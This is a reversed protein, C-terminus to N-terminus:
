GLLLPGSEQPIVEGENENVDVVSEPPVDLAKEYPLLPRVRVAVQIRSAHGRRSSPTQPTPPAPFSPPPPPAANRSTFFKKTKKAQTPTAQHPLAMFSAQGWKGVVGVSNSASSM